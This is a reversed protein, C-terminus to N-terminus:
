GQPGQLNETSAGVYVSIQAQVTVGLGQDRGRFGLIRFGLGVTVRKTTIEGPKPHRNPHDLACPM